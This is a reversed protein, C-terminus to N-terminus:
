TDPVLACRRRRSFSSRSSFLRLKWGQRMLQRSLQTGRWRRGGDAGKKFSPICFLGGPGMIGTVDLPPPPGLGQTVTLCQQQEPQSECGM